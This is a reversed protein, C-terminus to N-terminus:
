ASQADTSEGLFTGVLAAYERWAQARRALEARGSPTITYVKRDPGTAQKEWNGMILAEQELVRLAPYLSGEKMTLAGQSRQEVRRAIAYGHAPAIELVSLILTPIDGKLLERM